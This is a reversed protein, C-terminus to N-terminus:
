LLLNYNILAILFGGLVDHLRHVNLVIRSIGILVPIIIYKISFMNNYLIFFLMFACYSHGSPFSMNDDVSIISYNILNKNLVYPRPSRINLKLGMVVCFGIIFIIIQNINIYKHKYLLLICAILVHPECSLSLLNMLIIHFKM